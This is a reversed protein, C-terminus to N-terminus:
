AKKAVAAAPASAAAAPSPPVDATKDQPRKVNLRVSFDFL